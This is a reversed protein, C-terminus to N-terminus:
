PIIPLCSLTFSNLLINFGGNRTTFIPRFSGHGHLLPFFYLFHQPAIFGHDPQKNRASRIFPNMGYVRGCRPLTFRNVKPNSRYLLAFWLTCVMPSPEQPKGQLCGTKISLVAGLLFLSAVFLVFASCYRSGSLLSSQLLPRMFCVACSLSNSYEYRQYSYRLSVQSRYFLCFPYTSSNKSKGSFCLSLSKRLAITPLRFFNM